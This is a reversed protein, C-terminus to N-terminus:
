KPEYIVDKREVVVRWGVRKAHRYLTKNPNFCIPEEVMELFPVDSETDGVGVSGTLTLKQKEIARRLINAKNEILHLDMTRGTFRDEPGLEYIRGYIRDFGIPRCFYDLAVKPSQSIALLYYGKKKLDTILDRSYRYTLHRHHAAVAKATDAFDGYHVGKLNKMFTVVLANIYDEYSGHRETWRRYQREYNDRMTKPMYGRDILMETLEIVLSSRFLTGDIDFVAVKKKSEDKMRSM